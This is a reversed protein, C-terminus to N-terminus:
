TLYSNLNKRTRLNRVQRNTPPRHYTTTQDITNLFGPLENVSSGSKNEEYLYCVYQISTVVPPNELSLSPFEGFNIVDTLEDIKSTLCTITKGIHSFSSVFNYGSIVHMAPRLCCITLGLESALIHVPIYTQDDDTGTKCIADLFTLDAHFKSIFIDRCCWHRAFCHDGQESM